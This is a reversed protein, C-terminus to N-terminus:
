EISIYQLKAYKLSSGSSFPGKHWGLTSMNSSVLISCHCNYVDLLGQLTYEVSDDIKHYLIVTSWVETLMEDLVPVILKRFM